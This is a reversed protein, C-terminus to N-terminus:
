SGNEITRQFHEDESDPAFLDVFADAAARHVFNIEFEGHRKMQSKKRYEDCFVYLYINTIWVRHGSHRLLWDESCSQDTVFATWVPCKRLEGDGVVTHIRIGGSREDQYVYLSHVFGDDLISGQFLRKEGLYYDEPHVIKTLPCRAKLAVFACHFLVMKEWTKFFLAM